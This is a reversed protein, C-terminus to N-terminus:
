VQTPHIEELHNRYIRFLRDCMKITNMSHSIVVLTKTQSFLQINDILESETVNDLANTAEDLLLIERQHFFARAFSIRQRQGGSIKSGYKGLVTNMGDPLQSVFVNLRANQLAQQIQKDQNSEFSPELTINTAIDTDLIFDEQPLYAIQSRWHDLDDHIPQGNFFIEGKTPPLFGLIMDILTTKGSGSPGIIGISQGRQITLSLDEFILDSRGPYQFRVNRLELTKFQSNPPPKNRSKNGKVPQQEPYLLLKRLEQSLKLVAPRFFRLRLVSNISKQTVPVLRLIGFLFTAVVAFNLENNSQNLLSITFILVVLTIIFVELLFRSADAIVISRTHASGVAKSTVQLLTVFQKSKNLTKIVKYGDFSDQILQVARLTGRNAIDGARRSIRKFVRDYLFAFIFLTILAMMSVTPNTYFLFSFIFVAILCDSILQLLLILSNAFSDTYNETAQILEASNTDLSHIYSLDFYGKIIRTRLKVNQSWAFRVSWYKILIGLVARLLFVSLLTAGILLEPIPYDNPINIGSLLSAILSSEYVSRDMLITIYPLVIGLGLLELFALLTFGALLALLKSIQEDLLFSIEGIYTQITKSIITM